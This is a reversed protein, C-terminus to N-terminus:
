FIEDGDVSSLYDLQDLRNKDIKKYYDSQFLRNCHKLFTGYNANLIKAVATKNHKQLLYIIDSYRYVDAEELKEGSDSKYLKKFKNGANRITVRNYKPEYISLTLTNDNISLTVGTKELLKKMKDINKKNTEEYYKSDAVDYKLTLM